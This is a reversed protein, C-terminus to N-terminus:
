GRVPALAASDLYEERHAIKGDRVQCVFCADVSLKGGDPLDGIARHQQVFGGKFPTVRIDVYRINTARGRMQKVSGLHQDITLTKGTANLWLTADQTYYKRIEDVNGAEAAAMMRRSLERAQEDTEDTSM